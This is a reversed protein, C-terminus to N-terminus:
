AYATPGLGSSGMKEEIGRIILIVGIGMAYAAIVTVITL